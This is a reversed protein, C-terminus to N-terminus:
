AAHSWYHGLCADAAELEVVASHLKEAAARVWADVDTQIAIRLATEADFVRVSAAQRVAVADNDVAPTSM